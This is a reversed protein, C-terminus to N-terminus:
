DTGIVEARFHKIPYLETPYLKKILEGNGILKPEVTEWNVLDNSGEIKYTLGKQTRIQIEVAHHISLINSPKSNSDFPDYGENLEFGDAYGDGDTDSNLPNLDWSVVETWDTLGDGDSDAKSVDTGYSEELKDSLGDQDSDAPSVIRYVYDDIAVYIYENSVDVDM